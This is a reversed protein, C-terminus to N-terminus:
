HAPHTEYQRISEQITSKARRLGHFLDRCPIPKNSTYDGIAAVLEPTDRFRFLVQPGSRETDQLVLGRALLYGAVGYDATKFFATMRM